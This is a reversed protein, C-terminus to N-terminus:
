DTEMTMPIDFSDSVPDYSGSAEVVFLPTMEYRDLARDIRDIMRDAESVLPHAPVSTGAGGDTTLATEATM